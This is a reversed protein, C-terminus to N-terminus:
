KSALWAVAFAAIMPAFLVNTAISEFSVIIASGFGLLLQGIYSLSWLGFPQDVMGSDTVAQALRDTLEEFFPTALMLALIIATAIALVQISIRRAKVWGLALQVRQLMLAPHVAV